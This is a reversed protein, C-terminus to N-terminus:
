NNDVELTYDGVLISIARYFAHASGYSPKKTIKVNEIFYNMIELNKVESM